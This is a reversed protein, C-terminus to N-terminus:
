SCTSRKFVSSAKHWNTDRPTNALAPPAHRTDEVAVVLLLEEPLLDVLQQAAVPLLDELLLLEVPLLPDEVLCETQLVVVPHDAEAMQM